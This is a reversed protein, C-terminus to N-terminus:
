LIEKALIDKGVFKHGKIYSAALKNGEKAALVVFSRPEYGLKRCTECLFLMSPMLKSSTANLKRSETRCSTCLYVEKM